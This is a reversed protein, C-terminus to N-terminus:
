LDLLNRRYVVISNSYKGSKVILFVSFNSTNLGTHREKHCDDRGPMLGINGREVNM